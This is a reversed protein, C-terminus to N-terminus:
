SVKAYVSRATLKFRDAMNILCESHGVYLYGGDCLIDAFRSMLDGRSENSFYIVVNRCFVVDFKGKMPWPQLLNLTNFTILSRLEPAMRFRDPEGKVPDVYRSRLAPPITEVHRAGYIGDRAAKLVNTDIDTALIRIDWQAIDRLTECLVMAITYPEEGTSCGASWIRMRKRGRTGSRAAADPIATAALHDFHHSERFFKTVNTTVANLTFSAEQEGEPGKLLDCYERFSRLGLQRLRKTLRGYVMERKSPGLVIGARQHAVSAILAFEEDSMAFERSDAASRTTM